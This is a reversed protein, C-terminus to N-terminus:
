AMSALAELLYERVEPRELLDTHAAGEVVRLSGRGVRALREGEEMPVRKDETGHAVFVPVDLESLRQEPILGSFPEGARLRWSPTLIPVLLDGPVGHDTLYRASVAMLDAPAALLILGRVSPGKAAALISAAGGMSHGALVIEQVGSELRLCEAAALVDDRFHRATVYPAPESRGHGRVDFVLTPAGARAMDIGLPLMLSSTGTWGHTLVVPPLQAADEPPLLLWGRLELGDVQFEVDRFQLGKGQPSVDAPKHPPRIFRLALRDLGLIVVAALTTAGAIAVGTV